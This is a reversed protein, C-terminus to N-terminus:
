SLAAVPDLPRDVSVTIPPVEEGLSLLTLAPKAELTTDRFGSVVLVAEDSSWAVREATAEFAYEGVVRGTRDLLAVRGGAEVGPVFLNSWVVLRDTRPLWVAGVPHQEPRDFGAITIGGTLRPGTISWRRDLLHGHSGAVVLRGDPSAALLRLADTAVGRGSEDLTLLRDGVQLAYGWDGWAALEAGAPLSAVREASGPIGSMLDAGQETALTWALRGPETPHWSFSTASTEVPELGAATGVSLTRPVSEAGFVPALAALRDGEADAAM